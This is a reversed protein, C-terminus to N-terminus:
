RPLRLFTRLQGIDGGTTSTTLTLVEPIFGASGDTLTTVNVSSTSPGSASARGNTGIDVVEIEAVDGNLLEYGDYTITYSTSVGDVTVGDVIKLNSLALEIDQVTSGDVSLCSATAEGDLELRYEGGSMLSANGVFSVRQVEHVRSAWEIKYYDGPAGNSGEPKTNM